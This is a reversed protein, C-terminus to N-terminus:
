RLVTEYIYEILVDNRKADLRKCIDRIKSWYRSKKEALNFSFHLKWAVMWETDTEQTELHTEHSKKERNHRNDYLVTIFFLRTCWICSYEIKCNGIIRMIKKVTSPSLLALINWMNNEHLSIRFNPINERQKLFSHWKVQTSIIPYVKMLIHRSILLNHLLSQCM